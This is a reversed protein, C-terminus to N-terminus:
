TAESRRRRGAACHCRYRDSEDTITWGTDGCSSCRTATAERLRERLSDVELRLKALMALAELKVDQMAERDLRRQKWREFTARQMADFLRAFQGERQYDDTVIGELTERHCREDQYRRRAKAMENVAATYERTRDTTFQCLWLIEENWGLEFGDSSVKIRLAEIRTEPTIVARPM